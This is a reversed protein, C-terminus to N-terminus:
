VALIIKGFNQNEEMYRHADAAQALPFVKDVVPKIRGSALLPLWNKRFRQTVEIKETLPRARL